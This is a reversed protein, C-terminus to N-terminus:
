LGLNSWLFMELDGGELTSVQTQFTDHMEVAMYVM